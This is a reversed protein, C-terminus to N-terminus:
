KESRIVLSCSIGDLKHMDLADSVNASHRPSFFSVKLVKIADIYYLAIFGVEISTYTYLVPAAARIYLDAHYVPVSHLTCARLM